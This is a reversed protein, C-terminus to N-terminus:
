QIDIIKGNKTILLVHNLHINTTKLIYRIRREAQEGTIKPSKLLSVIVNRSQKSAKRLNNEIMHKGKGILNKIEWFQKTKVVQIDPTTHNGRIVFMINSQFYKACVEAVAMEYKDPKPKLGIPYILSYSDSM